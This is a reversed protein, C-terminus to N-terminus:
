SRLRIVEKLVQKGRATLILPDDLGGHKILGIDMLVTTAQEHRSARFHPTLDQQKVFRGNALEFWSADLKRKRYKVLDHRLNTWELIGAVADRWDLQGTLWVDLWPFITGLWANEKAQDAVLILVDEDDRGRWKGYLLALVVVARGLRTAPSVGRDECVSWENLQSEGYFKETVARSAAVDPIGTVGFAKLLAAPTSCDARMTKKLDQIFAKSVLEDLLAPQILGEPYPALADLVAALFEELAFALFQHASFQRWFAHAVAFAPPVKYPLLDHDDDAIGAYYHPWFVVGGDVDRRNVAIDADECVQLVHLFMGLTAQRNLPRTASPKEDLEFFLRILLEREADAARGALADLSYWEASDELVTKPVRLKTRWNGALYPAKATAAAFAEALKRGFESTVADEGNEDVRVLGLDYLCGGYYQGYGGTQNSPLVPFDTEITNDNGRSALITNVNRIGVIPLDTKRGLRLALAFAAERRQFEEEFSIRAGKVQRLAEIDAIAWTYFSYYRARDTTTIINPLLFGTLADSVRSLGLPDRGSGDMAVRRTWQPLFKM